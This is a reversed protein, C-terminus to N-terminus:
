VINYEKIKLSLLILLIRTSDYQSTEKVSILKLFHEYLPLLEMIQFLKKIRSNGIPKEM